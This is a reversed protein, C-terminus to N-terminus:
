NKKQGAWGAVPPPKRLEIAKIKAVVNEQGQRLDPRLRETKLQEGYLREAKRWTALAEKQRGIRWQIDGLHDQLVPDDGQSPVRVAQQIWRFAETFRGQQYYVWALTDMYAASNPDSAVALRGLEEARALNQGAEAYVYALDNAYEGAKETGVHQDYLSETQRVSLEMLGMRKYFTSLLRALRVSLNADKGQVQPLLVLEAQARGGALFTWQARRVLADNDQLGLRDLEIAELYNNQDAALEALSAATLGRPGLWARSGLWEAAAAPSLAAALLMLDEDHAALRGAEKAPLDKGSPGKGAPWDTLVEAGVADYAEAARLLQRELVRLLADNNPATARWARVLELAEPRQGQEELVGLLLTQIAQDDPSEKRQQQLYETARELQGAYGWFFVLRTQLTHKQEKGWETKLLDLMLEAAEAPKGMQALMEAKAFRWLIRNPHEVLLSQLVQMSLDMQLQRALSTTLLLRAEENTPDGALVGTLIVTAREADGEALLAEGLALLLLSDGPHKKLLSAVRVSPPIADGTQAMLLCLDTAAVDPFAEKLRQAHQLAADKQRLALLDKVLAAHAAWADPKITVLVQYISSAPQAQGLRDNIRAALWMSKADKRDRRLAEYLNTMGTKFDDLGDYAEGIIRYLAGSEKFKGTLPEALAIADQWRCQALIQEGLMVAILLSDPQVEHAVRLAREALVPQGAAGAVIGLALLRSADKGAKGLVAEGGAAVARALKPNMELMDLPELLEDQEAPEMQRLLGALGAVSAPLDDNSLVIQMLSAYVPGPESIGKRAILLAQLAPDIQDFKLFITAVRQALTLDSPNERVLSLLRERLEDRRNDAVLTAALMALASTNGPQRGLVKDALEAARRTDGTDILTEALSLMVEPNEPSMRLAASYAAVAEQPKGLKRLCAGRLAPVRWGQSVVLDRWQPQLPLDESGGVLKEFRQAIEVAAAYYDQRELVQALHFYIRVRQGDNEALSLGHRLQLLATAGEGKAAAAVGLLYHVEASRPRQKLAAELVAQSKSFDGARLAARGLALRPEFGAPDAALAAEFEPVADADQYDEALAAGALYHKLAEPPIARDVLETAEPLEPLAPLKAFPQTSKAPLSGGPPRSVAPRSGASRAPAACGGSGAAYGILM